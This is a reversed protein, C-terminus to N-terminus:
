LREPDLVEPVYATTDHKSVSGRRAAQLFSKKLGFGSMRVKWDPDVSPIDMLRIVEPEFGPDEKHVIIGSVGERQLVKSIRPTIKTGITYHLTPKELYMGVSRGPARSLSDKRPSYDRQFEGYPVITDIDHGMVGEPRTIRVKDFFARAITEVNRRHTAVGNSKLIDYFKNIFYARGEGLGKYHAIAAPNPTGSTLVDGAEVTDGKKVSIERSPPVWVQESGVQLYSGGQPAKVINTVRGDAPALVAAGRFNKPVQMFQNIEDFGGVSDGEAGVLGGVHKASLGLSQMLPESLVRANDMGVRAGIPPFNKQDRKGACRQCIGSPQQCTAVSRILPQKDRLKKMHQKEIVTGASIDGYDRALVSGLIEPDNGDAQIGVQSAGCDKGTVRLKQAMQTLQKGFFGTQATAFQVDSFGKRSGYSDAWYETPTIGEGYGHMGAVPIPRGRHDAVLMNGFLLQTLQAPSGRFGHKISQTFSNGRGGTEEELNKQILPIAKRMTSIIRKNKEERPLDSQAIVDLREQLQKRYARMRPPLSLDALSLSAENGYETSAQRGIDNLSQLIEVYKHPHKEALETFVEGVGRKDLTRNGRLGPPLADDVLIRGITSVAM